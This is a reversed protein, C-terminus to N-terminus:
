GADRWTADRLMAELASRYNAHKLAYGTSLLRANSVRKNDAYFARAMASIEAEEFPVEPPPEVGLLEAAFAVVDQPPAPEHDVINFAGGIARSALWQTAGAIDDVHIRNFVQGPKVVRRATGAELNLFPNRGPGYIGGLRLLAVPVRQAEGFATWAQEAAVRQKGRVSVPDLADDEGVWNGGRDGYVGITSLYGIWQLRPLADRGQGELVNLVPDGAADPAASSILHTTRGLEAVLEHSLDGNFLLPKIGASELAAFKDASRTTGAVSVGAAVLRRGIARGSYGAGFILVHM